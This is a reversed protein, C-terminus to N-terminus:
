PKPGRRRGARAAGDGSADQACRRGSACAVSDSGFVRRLPPLITASACLRRWQCVAEAGGQYLLLVAEAGGWPPRAAREPRAPLAPRPSLPRRPNRPGSGRARTWRAMGQASRDAQRDAQSVTLLAPAIIVVRRPNWPGSGRARARWAMGQASSASLGTRKVARSALLSSTRKVMGHRTGVFRVPGQGSHRRLPCARTRKM